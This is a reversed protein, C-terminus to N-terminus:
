WRHKIIPVRIPWAKYGYDEAYIRRGSKSCTKWPSFITKYRKQGDIVNGENWRSKMTEENWRSKM